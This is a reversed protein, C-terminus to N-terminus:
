RRGLRDRSSRALRRSDLALRSSAARMTRSGRRECEGRPKAQNSREFGEDRVTAGDRRQGRERREPPDRERRQRVDLRRGVDDQDRAVREATGGPKATPATAAIAEFMTKPCPGHVGHCISAQPSTPRSPARARASAAASGARRWPASRRPPRSRNRRQDEVERRPHGEGALVRERLESRDLALREAEIEDVRDPIEDEEQGESRRQDPHELPQPSPEVNRPPEDPRSRQGEERRGSDQPTSRARAPRSHPPVRARRHGIQLARLVLIPSKPKPRSLAETLERGGPRNIPSSAAPAVRRAQGPSPMVGHAPHKPM